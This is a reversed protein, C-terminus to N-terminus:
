NIRRSVMGIGYAKGIKKADVMKLDTSYYYLSEEIRWTRKQLRYASNKEKRLGNEEVDRFYEQVEVHLIPHNEKLSLVYDAKKEKVIKKAIEKQCGMADITVINGKIFLLDLLEPIATIENSKDDTKVQGLVLKNGSCWASVIHIARKGSKKSSTGCMTKGDIASCRRVIRMVEKMMRCCCKSNNPDIPDISKRHYGHPIGNKQNLINRAMRRKRTGNRMSVMM